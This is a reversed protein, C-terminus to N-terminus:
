RWLQESGAPEIRHQEADGAARLLIQVEAGEWALAAYQASYDNFALLLVSQDARCESARVDIVRVAQLVTLTAKGPRGGPRAPAADLTAIIDILDGPKLSAAQASAVPLSLARDSEKMRSQVKAILALRQEESISSAAGCVPEPKKRPKLGPRLAKWSVREPSAHEQDGKKRLAIRVSGSRRANELYQAESITLELQVVSKTPDSSSREVGAVRLLHMFSGAVEGREDVAIADVRDDPAIYLAHDRDLELSMGRYGPHIQGAAAAAAFLLAASAAM